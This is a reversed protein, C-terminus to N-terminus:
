RRVLAQALQRLVKQGLHLPISAQAHASVIPALANPFRSTVLKDLLACITGFQPYPTPDDSALSDQEPTLFPISAVIRAGSKTKYFVKRGFYTDAGYRKASDSFIVREKIYGDTPLYYSGNPFYQGGDERKDLEEFHAVFNGTKEIGVIIMDNDTKARVVTNLRQLERSIAASLWAPPGFIALPGDLFFAITGLRDLWNRQEFCRLLHILLLHEWISRVYGFAEENSGSDDNFREHIRLADTPFLPKRRECPCTSLNAGISVECNCGLHTYPCTITGAPKFALLAQYTALLRTNDEEDVIADHFLEFLAERFSDKASIHDRTIVNCGPLASADSSPDETRRFDVPDVPRNVDLREVEALNLLVSAVSCYGIKAGPYGNRVEVETHSGDIALVLSPLMSCAAPPAKPMAQQTLTSTDLVRSRRLLQQVRESEVIRKLPQYHAYEGEYPM